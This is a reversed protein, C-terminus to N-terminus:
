IPSEKVRILPALVSNGVSLQKAELILTPYVLFTFAIQIAMYSFHGLDVFMAELGTMCLLFNRINKETEGIFKSLVEPGNVIKREKMTSGAKINFSLDMKKSGNNMNGHPALSGVPLESIKINVIDKLSSTILFPLLSFCLKAELHKGPHSLVSLLQSFFGPSISLM